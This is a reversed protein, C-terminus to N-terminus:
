LDHQVEMRAVHEKAETNVHDGLWDCVNPWRPGHIAQLEQMQHNFWKRAKSLLEPPIGQENLAPMSVGSKFDNTTM